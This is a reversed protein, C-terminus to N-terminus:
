VKFFCNKYSDSLKRGLLDGLFSNFNIPFDPMELSDMGLRKACENCLHVEKKVGNIIQTYRINAEHKGCNQCMM